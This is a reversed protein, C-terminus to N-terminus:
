GVMGRMRNTFVEESPSTTCWQGATLSAARLRGSAVMSQTTSSDKAAIAAM